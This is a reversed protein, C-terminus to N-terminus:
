VVARQELQSVTAAGPSLMAFSFWAQFNPSLTLETTSDFGGFPGSKQEAAAAPAQEQTISTYRTQNQVGLQNHTHTHTHHLPLPPPAISQLTSRRNQGQTQAWLGQTQTRTQTQTQVQAQPPAGTLKQVLERFHM